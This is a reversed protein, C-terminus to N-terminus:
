PAPQAARKGKLIWREMFLESIGVAMFYLFGFAVVRYPEVEWLGDGSFDQQSIVADTIGLSPVPLIITAFAFVLYWLVNTGWSYQMYEKEKGSPPHGVILGLLRNFTLSWFAWIPWWEKFALAFGGVFLTYFTGLGLVSLMKKKKEADSIIVNGMFGSSHVIIFELLMVLLLYSVTKEGFIAPNIWGALFLGGLGFDPLSAIVASLTAKAKEPATENSSLRQRSNDSM